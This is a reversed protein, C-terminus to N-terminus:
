YIELCNATHTIQKKNILYVCHDRSSHTLTFLFKVSNKRILVVVLVFVSRTFLVLGIQISIGIQPCMIM